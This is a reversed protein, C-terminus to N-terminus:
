YRVIDINVNCNFLSLSCKGRATQTTRIRVLVIAVGTKKVAALGELSLEVLLELLNGSHPCM